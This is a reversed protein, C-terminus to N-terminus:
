EVSEIRISIIGLKNEFIDYTVLVKEKLDKKAQSFPRIPNKIETNPNISPQQSYKIQKRM